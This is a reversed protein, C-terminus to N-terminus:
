ALATSCLADYKSYNNVWAITSKDTIVFFRGNDSVACSRECSATKAPVMLVEHNRQEDKEVTIHIQHLDSTIKGEKRRLSLKDRRRAAEEFLAGAAAM